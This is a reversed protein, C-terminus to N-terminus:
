TPAPRDGRRSEAAAQEPEGVPRFPLVACLTFGEPRRRGADLTGGILNVRERLGILGTGGSMSEAQPVAQGAGDDSVEVLLGDSRWELLVDVSTGPGAHRVTNTLGEQVVRYAALEVSPDMRRQEGRRTLTVVVGTARAGAVLVDLAELGPTGGAAPSAASVSRLVALLRRLEAVAQKGVDEVTRMAAKAADADRDVTRHAGAAHIVMVTVAHAVIDHLERAIRLREADVAERVLAERGRELREVQHLGARRRRGLGYAAGSLLANVTLTAVALGPSLAPTVLVADYGTEVLQAAGVPVLCWLATRRTTATAVTHVMLLLGVLPRSGITLCSVIAHVGVAWCVVVPARRRLALLPVVALAALVVVAGPADFATWADVSRNENLRSFLLLDLCAVAVALPVDGSGPRRVRRLWRPPSVRGSSGTM